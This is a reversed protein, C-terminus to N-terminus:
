KSSNSLLLVVNLLEVDLAKDTVHETDSVSKYGGRLFVTSTWPNKQQHQPKRKNQFASDKFASTDYTQWHQLSGPSKWYVHAAQHGLIKETLVLFHM